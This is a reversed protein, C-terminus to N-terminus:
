HDKTKLSPTDKDSKPILTIIGLCQTISLRDAEYGFSIAESFFIKLDKWLNKFFNIRFALAELTYM